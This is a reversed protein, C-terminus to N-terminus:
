ESTHTVVCFLLGRRVRVCAQEATLVNSVGRTAGFRLTADDLPWELGETTIGTADGRLPILSVTDGSQGEIRAEDRILFAEQAGEVIRVDVDRLEPLTLLLLNAMMQDLRGGLAAVIIIASAGEAVARHLALELDTQDKRPPFSSVEAGAARLREQEDASLSDLDGVVLQPESGVEWAHRTGGDVAIILDDARLLDRVREPEKFVGNVFVVARM